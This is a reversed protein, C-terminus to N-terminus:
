VVAPEPMAVIEIKLGLTTMLRSLNGITFNYEGSEWKSVMTQSVGAFKAFEKQTMNMNLRKEHICVSIEAKMDSEAKDAATLGSFPDEVPTMELLKKIDM